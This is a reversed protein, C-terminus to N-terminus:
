GDEDEDNNELSNNARPYGENTVIKFLRIRGSVKINKDTSGSV